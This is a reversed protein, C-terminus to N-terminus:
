LKLSFLKPSNPKYTKLQKEQNHSFYLIRSRFFNNFIIDQSKCHYFYLFCVTWCNEGFLNSHKREKIIDTYDKIIGSLFAEGVM